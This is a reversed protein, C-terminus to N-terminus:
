RAVALTVSVETKLDDERVWSVNVGTVWGKVLLVTLLQQSISAQRLRYEFM